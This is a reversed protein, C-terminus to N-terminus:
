IMKSKGNSFLHILATGQPGKKGEVPFYTISVLASQKAPGNNQAKRSIHAKLYLEKQNDLLVVEAAELQSKSDLSRASWKLLIQTAGEHLSITDQFQTQTAVIFKEAPTYSRQTLSGNTQITPQSCGLSLLSLLGVLWYIQM